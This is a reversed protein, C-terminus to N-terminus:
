GVRSLDKTWAKLSVDSIPVANYKMDTVTLYKKPGMDFYYVNDATLDGHVFYFSPGTSLVKLAKILLSAIRQLKPRCDNFICYTSLPEGNAKSFGNIV